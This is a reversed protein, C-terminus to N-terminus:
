RVNIYKNARIIIACCFCELKCDSMTRHRRDSRCLPSVDVSPPDVAMGTDDWSWQRRIQDRPDLGPRIYFHHLQLFYHQSPHHGRSGRPLRNHLLCGPRAAAGRRLGSLLKYGQSKRNKDRKNAFNFWVRERERARQTFMGGDRFVSVRCIRSRM